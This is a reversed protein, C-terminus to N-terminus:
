QLSPLSDGGHRAGPNSLSTRGEQDWFHVTGHGSKKFRVHKDSTIRPYMSIVSNQCRRKQISATLCHFRSPDNITQEFHCCIKLPHGNVVALMQIRLHHTKQKKLVTTKKKANRGFAGRTKKKSFNTAPNAVFYGTSSFHQDRFPPNLPVFFSPFASGWQSSTM